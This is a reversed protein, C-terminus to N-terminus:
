MVIIADDLCRTFQSEEIANGEASACSRPEAVAASLMITERRASSNRFSLRTEVFTKAVDSSVFSIFIFFPLRSLRQLSSMKSAFLVVDSFNKIEPAVGATSVDDTSERAPNAVIKNASRTRRCVRWKWMGAVGILM